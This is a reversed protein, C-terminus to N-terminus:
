ECIYVVINCIKIQVYMLAAFKLNGKYYEIQRFLFGLNNYRSSKNFNFTGLFNRFSRVSHRYEM